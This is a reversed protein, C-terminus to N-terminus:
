LVRSCFCVRLVVGFIWKESPNTKADKYLPNLIREEGLPPVEAWLGGAFDMSETRCARLAKQVDFPNRQHFTALTCLVVGGFGTRALARKPGKRTVSKAKQVEFSPPPVKWLTFCEDFRSAITGLDAFCARFCSASECRSDARRLTTQM